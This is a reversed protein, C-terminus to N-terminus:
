CCGCYPAFMGGAPGPLRLGNPAGPCPKGFWGFWVGTTVLCFDPMVLWTTVATTAASTDPASHRPTPKVAIVLPQTCAGVELESDSTLDLVDPEPEALAFDPVATSQVATALSTDSETTAM